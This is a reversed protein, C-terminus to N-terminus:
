INYFKWLTWCVQYFYNLSSLGRYKLWHKVHDNGWGHRSCSESIKKNQGPSLGGHEGGVLLLHEQFLYSSAEFSGNLTEEKKLFIQSANLEFCGGSLSDGVNLPIITGIQRLFLCQKILSLRATKTDGELTSDAHCPVGRNFPPFFPSPPM